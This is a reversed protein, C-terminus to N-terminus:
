TTKCNPLTDLAAFQQNVPLRQTTVSLVDEEEDIQSLFYCKKVPELLWKVKIIYFKVTGHGPASLTILFSNCCQASCHFGNLLVSFGVSLLRNYASVTCLHACNNDM